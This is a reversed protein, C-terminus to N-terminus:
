QPVVLPLRMGILVRGNENYAQVNGDHAEAIMKVIYLGLGLHLRDSHSTGSNERASFMPEFLQALVTDTVPAGQNAVLLQVYGPAAGRARVPEGAFPKVRLNLTIVGSESFGVANDVLKDFAQSLLEPSATVFVEPVISPNLQFQKDPYVQQYRTLSGSMWQALNIRQMDALQVTQELRTSEVLAKIISGLHEAGGSARDILMLSQEDLKDRDLNEISTRVVSLPTRLEHSLRSSLAELYHTYAASRALLTSLKRSLDGIEDQADSGPLGRVRGDASVAHQAELSLSRIRSFLVLAFILLGCGAMLSVLLLLSFLRALESGAYASSHEENSEFLLYGRQPESGIPALTGLVRDNEDTVYRSTVPAGALVLARRAESLTLSVPTSRTESLLPLDGAVFFAFVRLLIADWLGESSHAAALAEDESLEQAYLNNVDALLRGHVDFLRARGGPMTWAKMRNRAVVSDHFLLGFALESPDVRKRHVRAMDSPSVSGTWRVRAEGPFDVDVVAIGVRSGSAPLPLMLELQFGDNTDVWAGQWNLITTGSPTYRGPQYASDSATVAEVPGPAITRFLGHQWDGDVKSDTRSEVLLEISDGNVLRTKRDPQEGEGADILLVPPRHHVLEEDIVTVFLYMSDEYRAVRVSTGSDSDGNEDPFQYPTNVLTQWDDDYGDIYIPYASSEAYWDNDVSTAWGSDLASRIDSIDAFALRMNAVRLTQEDIRTQQLASYLQKVSQWGVLPVALTLVGALLMQSRLKM